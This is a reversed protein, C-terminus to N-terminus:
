FRRVASFQFGGLITNAFRRHRVLYSAPREELLTDGSPNVDQPSAAGTSFLDYLAECASQVDLIDTQFKWLVEFGPSTYKVLRQMRLGPSVSFGYSGWSIDLSAQLAWFIGLRSFPLFSSFQYRKKDKYYSALTKSTKRSVGDAPASKSGVLFGGSPTTSITATAASESLVSDELLNVVPKIKAMTYTSAVTSQFLLLTQIYGSLDSHIKKLTSEQKLSLAAKTSRKMKSDDEAPTIKTLISELAALQTSCEGVFTELMDSTERNYHGHAIHFQSGRLAQMLLPLHQRIGALSDPVDGVRRVYHDLRHIIKGTCDMLTVTAGVAGLVGLAEAM